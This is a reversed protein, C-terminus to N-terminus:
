DNTTWYQLGQTRTYLDYLLLCKKMVYMLELQKNVESYDEYDKVLQVVLSGYTLTFLEANQLLNRTVHLFCLRNTNTEQCKCDKRSQEELCRPRISQIAKCINVHNFPTAPSLFWFCLVAAVWGSSLKEDKHLALEVSGMRMM